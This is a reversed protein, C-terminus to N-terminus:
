PPLYISTSDRNSTGFITCKAAQQELFFQIIDHLNRFIAPQLLDCSFDLFLTTVRTSSTSRLVVKRSSMYVFTLSCGTNSVDDHTTSTSRYQLKVVM